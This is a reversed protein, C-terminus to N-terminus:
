ENLWKKRREAAMREKARQEVGALTMYYGTICLVCNASKKPCEKQNTICFEQADLDSALKFLAARLVENERQTKSKM